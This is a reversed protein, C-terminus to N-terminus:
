AISIAGRAILAARLAAIVVAANGRGGRRRRVPWGAPACPHCQVIPEAAGDLAAANSFVADFKASSPCRGRMWWVRMSASRPRRVVM